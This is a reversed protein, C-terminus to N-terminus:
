NLNVNGKCISCVNLFSANVNNWLGLLPKFFNKWNALMQVCVYDKFLCAEIIALEIVLIIDQLGGFFGLLSGFLCWLRFRDNLERNCIISSAICSMNITCLTIEEWKCSFYWCLWPNLNEMVFCQFLLGLIDVNWLLCNSPQLRLPMHWCKTSCTERLWLTVFTKKKAITSPKSSLQMNDMWNVFFCRGPPPPAKLYLSFFGQMPRRYWESWTKGQVLGMPPPYKQSSEVVVEDGKNWSHGWRPASGICKRKPSNSWTCNSILM